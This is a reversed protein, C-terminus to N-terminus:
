LTDYRPTLERFGVAVPNFLHLPKLLVTPIGILLTRFPPLNQLSAIKWDIRNKKLAFELKFQVRLVRTGLECLSGTISVRLFRKLRALDYLPSLLSLFASLRNQAHLTLHKM